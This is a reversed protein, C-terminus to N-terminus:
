AVEQQEVLSLLESAQNNISNRRSNVRVKSPIKEETINIQVYSDIEDMSEQNLMAERIADEDISVKFYGLKILEDANLISLTEKEKTKSPTITISSIATGEVRDIGYESLVSAIIELSLEKANLLSRKLAQMEKIDESLYDIKNQLELISLGIYDAKVHYPKDAELIDRLHNKLWEEGGAKLREMESQLRYNTMKM